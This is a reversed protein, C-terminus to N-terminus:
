MAFTSPLAYALTLVAFVAIFPGFAIRDKKHAKKLLLLAAAYIGGALMSGCVIQLLARPGLCFGLASYLKVDGMGMFPILALPLAAALLRAPIAADSLVPAAALLALTYLNPITYSRLDEISIRILWFVAWLFFITDM